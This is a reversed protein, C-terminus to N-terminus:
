IYMHGVHWYNTVIICINQYNKIKKGFTVIKHINQFNVKLYTSRPLYIVRVLFIHLYMLLGLYTPLYIIEEKKLFFSKLDLENSQNMWFPVKKYFLKTNKWHKWHM